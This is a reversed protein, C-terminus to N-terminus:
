AIIVQSAHSVAGTPQTQLKTSFNAFSFAIATILLFWILYVILHQDLNLQRDAVARHRDIHERLTM